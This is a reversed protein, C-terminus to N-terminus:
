FGINVGLSFIYRWNNMGEGNDLRIVEYNITKEAPITALLKYVEKTKTEVFSVEFFARIHNTIWYGTNIRLSYTPVNHYDDYTYYDRNYHIDLTKVFNLFSYKIEALMSFRRYQYLASVGFYPTILRQRYLCGNRGIGSSVDTGRNYWFYSMGDQLSSLETYSIGFLAWLSFIGNDDIKGLEFLRLKTTLDVHIYTFDGETHFSHHTFPMDDGDVWDYDDMRWRGSGKTPTISGKLEIEFNDVPKYAIGGTLVSVTTNRWILQSLLMDHNSTNYVYENMRSQLLGYQFTFRWKNGLFAYKGGQKSEDKKDKDDKKSQETMLIDQDENKIQSFKKSISVNKERMEDEQYESNSIALCKPLVLCVCTMTLFKAMGSLNTIKM